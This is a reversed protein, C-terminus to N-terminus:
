SVGCLQASSLLGGTICGSLFKGADLPVSLNKVVNVLARWQNRAQALGITAFFPLMNTQKM